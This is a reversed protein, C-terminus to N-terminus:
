PFFIHSLTKLRASLHFPVLHFCRYCACPFPLLDMDLPDKFSPFGQREIPLNMSMVVSGSALTHRCRTSDHDTVTQCVTRAWGSMAVMISEKDVRGVSSSIM